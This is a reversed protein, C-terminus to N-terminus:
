RRKRLLRKVHSKSVNKELHIMQELTEYEIGIEGNYLGDKTTKYIKNDEINKFVDNKKVFITGKGIRIFSDDVNKVLHGIYLSNKDM